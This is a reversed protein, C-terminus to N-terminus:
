DLERCYVEFLDTM